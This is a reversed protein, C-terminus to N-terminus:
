VAGAFEEEITALEERLAKYDGEESCLPELVTRGQHGHVKLLDGISNFIETSAIGSANRDAGWHVVVVGDDFEAVQAVRGTGSMGSVDEKRCLHFTRM